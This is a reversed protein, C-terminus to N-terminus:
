TFTDAQKKKREDETESAKEPKRKKERERERRGNQKFYGKAGRSQLSGENCTNAQAFGHYRLDEAEDQARWGVVSWTARLGSLIFQKYVSGRTILSLVSIENRERFLLLQIASVPRVCFAEKSHRATGAM